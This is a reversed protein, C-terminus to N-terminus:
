PFNHQDAPLWDESFGPLSYCPNMLAWFATTTSLTGQPAWTFLQTTTAITKSCNKFAVTETVSLLVSLVGHNIITLQAGCCSLLRIICLSSSSSSTDHCPPRNCDARGHRVLPVQM